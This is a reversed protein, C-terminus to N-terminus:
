PSTKSKGTSSTLAGPVVIWNAIRRGLANRFAQLDEPAVWADKGASVVIVPSHLSEADHLTHELTVFNNKIADSLFQNGVNFGLFNASDPSQGAVYNAFLDEQHVTVVSRQVNVIGMLM